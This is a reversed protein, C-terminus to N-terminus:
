HGYEPYIERNLIDVFDMQRHRYDHYIELSLAAATFADKDRNIPTVLAGIAEEFAVILNQPDDFESILAGM